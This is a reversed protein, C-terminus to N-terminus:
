IWDVGFSTLPDAISIAYTVFHHADGIEQTLGLKHAFNPYKEWEAFKEGKLKM